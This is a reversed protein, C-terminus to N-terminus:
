AIRQRTSMEEVYLSSRLIAKVALNHDVDVALRATRDYRFEQVRMAIQAHGAKVPETGGGHTVVIVAVTASVGCVHCEEVRMEIM